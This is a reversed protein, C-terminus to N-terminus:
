PAPEVADMAHARALRVLDAPSLAAMHNPSGAGVWVRKHSLLGRDVYVRHVRPLPFPAVAGAAFGTAALVEDPSAMRAKGCGAAQGVKGVDARRDGPTLVVVFRADCALVVSKVIQELKCGVARAAAVATPTGDVFEEIRAEAANRRLFEAVREVPEPWATM